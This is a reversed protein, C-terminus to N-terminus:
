FQLAGFPSLIAGRTGYFGESSEVQGRLGILVYLKKGLPIRQQIEANLGILGRNLLETAKQKTTITKTSSFSNVTVTGDSYVLSGIYLGVGIGFNRKKGLTWLYGPNLNLRVSTFDGEVRYNVAPTVTRHYGYGKRYSLGVTLFFRNTSNHLFNIRYSAALGSKYSISSFSKADDIMVKTFLQPGFGITHMIKKEEKQAFGGFGCMLLFIFYTTFKKM